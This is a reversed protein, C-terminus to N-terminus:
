YHNLIGLIDGGKGGDKGFYKTSIQPNNHDIRSNDGSRPRGGDNFIDEEESYEVSNTEKPACTTGCCLLCMRECAYDKCSSACRGVARTTKSFIIRLILLSLFWFTVALSGSILFVDDFSFLNETWELDYHHHHNDIDDEWWSLWFAKGVIGGFIFIVPSTCLSVLCILCLSFDCMKKKRCWHSYRKHEWEEGEDNKAIQEGSKLRM